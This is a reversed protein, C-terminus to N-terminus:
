SQLLKFDRPNVEPVYEYKIVKPIRTDVQDADSSAM